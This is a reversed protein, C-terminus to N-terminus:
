QFGGFLAAAANDAHGELEAALAGLQESSFPEDLLRNAAVLAGVRVVASAGLSRGVPIEGRYSAQLRPPRQQGAQAFVTNAAALAMGEARSTAHAAASSHLTLTVEAYLDLALGLADFGPGLNASTAPTRVTVARGM